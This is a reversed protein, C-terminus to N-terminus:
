CNKKKSFKQLQIHGCKKCISVKCSSKLIKENTSPWIYEPLKKTTYIFKNKKKGCARCNITM